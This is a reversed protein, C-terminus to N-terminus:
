RSSASIAILKANQDDKPRGLLRSSLRSEFSETSFRTSHARLAAPVVDAEEREFDQIAAQLHQEGPEDYFFGGRPAAEPVSELVGGRGLAIVPKGSALAEVAVLGFDEEGPVLVARCRAYLDALESDSVRGCFEIGKGSLNRLQSYEPGGGVIKLKRGSRTFCRVADVIRKYAVLESVILYYDEAPAIHFREIAVPPHIV